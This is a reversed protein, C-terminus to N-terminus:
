RRRPRRRVPPMRGAAMPEIEALTPTAIKQVRKAAEGPPLDPTEETDVSPGAPEGQQISVAEPLKIRTGGRSREIREEVAVTYRCWPIARLRPSPIPERSRECVGYRGELIRTIADNVETLADEEHALLALAVDHDFEDTASDALHLSHPEIAEGAEHWKVETDQLLHDRLRLLTRYHWAWKSPVTPGAHPSATLSPAARSDRGRRAARGRAGARNKRSPSPQKKM